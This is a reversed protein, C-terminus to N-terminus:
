SRVPRARNRDITLSVVASAALLIMFPEVPYTYRSMAFLATHILTVTVFPLMLLNSSLSRRHLWWGIIGFVVMFFHGIGLLLRSAVGRTNHVSDPYFAWLEWFNAWKQGIFGLPDAKMHDVYMRLAKGSTNIEPHKRNLSFDIYSGKATVAYLINIQNNGAVSFEGTKAHCYLCIALLPLLCGTLLRWPVRKNRITQIALLLIPIPAVNTRVFIALAFFLGSWFYQKRYYFFYAGVLFFATPVETMLLRVYNLQAPFGALIAAAVLGIRPSAYVRNGIDYIFWIILTSFVVNIWLLLIESDGSTFFKAIAIMLPYGNPFYNTYGGSLLTDAQNYYEYSDMQMNPLWTFFTILVRLLFGVILIFILAEKQDLAGSTKGSTKNM